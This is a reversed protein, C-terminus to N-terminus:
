RNYIRMANIEMLATIKNEIRIKVKSLICNRMTQCLNLSAYSTVKGNNYRQVLFGPM